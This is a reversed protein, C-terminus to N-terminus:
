WKNYNFQSQIDEFEDKTIPEFQIKDGAQLYCYRTPNESDFLQIPSRGIIQWGGPSDLSYIGTQQDAIGVSGSPIQRRPQSKRRHFLSSDLGGLYPFGPLFGIFYVTYVAESHNKIIEDVSLSLDESLLELDWGYDHDYCVPIKKIPSDLINVIKSDYIQELLDKKAEYFNNITHKYIILLSNYSNIVQLILEHKDTLLKNKLYLLHNLLNENIEEDFEVLISRENIQFIRFKHSM